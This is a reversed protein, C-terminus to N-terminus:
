IWDGFGGIKKEREANLFITAFFRGSCSGSGGGSNVGRGNPGCGWGGDSGSSRGGCRRGGGVFLDGKIGCLFLGESFKLGDFSM